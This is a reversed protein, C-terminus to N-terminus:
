FDSMYTLSSASRPKCMPGINLLKQPDRSEVTQKGNSGKFFLAILVCSDSLELDM